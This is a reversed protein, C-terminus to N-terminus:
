FMMKGYVLLGVFDSHVSGEFGVGSSDDDVDLAISVANLGAGIAFNKWARYEAALLIDSIKGKFDAVEVYMVEVSSRMTWKDTLAVDLRGGILPLPATVSDGATGLGAARVALGIDTVHLGVSGAFDVRDDQLFSYSYRVNYFALDFESDVTTGAPFITGDINIDDTLTRTAERSLDFWTFDVRHRRSSGFRYAGDVRFVTESSKLGLAEELNIEVGTGPTGIRVDNSLSAAFGGLSLNWKEWPGVSQQAFAPQMSVTLAALCIGKLMRTM